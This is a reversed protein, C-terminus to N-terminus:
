HMPEIKVGDLLVGRKAFSCDINKMFFEIEGCSEELFFEGAVFEMWGNEGHRLPTTNEVPRELDNLFRASEIHNGATTTLCFNFPTSAGYRVIIGEMKVIFSVRYHTNPLLLTCDFRGYVDFWWVLRLKALQEFRSDDSSVWDWYRNDGSWTICLGRASVMCGIQGTSRDVWMAKTGNDILFSDCLNFYLEKRSSFGLPVVARSLIYHYHSPLMKEWVTDANAASSWLASVVALRCVDKPTTFSLITSICNEPLDRLGVDSRHNGGEM